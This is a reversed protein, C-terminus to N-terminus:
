KYHQQKKHQQHHQQQQQITATTPTITSTLNIYIDNQQLMFFMLKMIGEFNLSDISSKPLSNHFRRIFNFKYINHVISMHVYKM